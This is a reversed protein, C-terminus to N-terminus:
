IEDEKSIVTIFLNEPMKQSNDAEFAGVLRGKNEIAKTAANLNTYNGKGDPLLALTRVEEFENFCDIVSYKILEQITKKRTEEVFPKLEEIEKRCKELLEKAHVSAYNETYGANICARYPKVGKAVEEIFKQKRNSKDTM